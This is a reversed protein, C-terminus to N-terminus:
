AAQTAPEPRTPPETDGRAQTAVARDVDRDIARILELAFEVALTLADDDVKEPLDEPTHYQPAGVGDTAGILSIARFGRTILPLADTHLPIAVPAARYREDAESIAQCLAFLRPETIQNLIAGESGVFHVSGFSLSDLNLFYTREPPISRRHYSIYRTMGEANAEEAGTLIVSVNLHEPPDTDLAEAVSLAAAVGSANDYAGPVYDSQAIDILLLIFVLLGVTPLLQIVNILQSDLGAMRLGSIILLPSIGAWFILRLPGLWVRFRESVRRALRVSRPGYILGTRAVDYHAVLMLDAPAAVSRGKSVVNQSARRFFLRRLLYFRTNQDLYLSAASLLVLGFGLPALTLAVLGGVVALLAHAAIVVSWQPHVYTPEIEARRGSQRLRTALWDAARREADTGPGRGQFSCRDSILQHRAAADM